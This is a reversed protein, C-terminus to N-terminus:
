SVPPKQVPGQQALASMGLQAIFSPLTFFFHEPWKFMLNISFLSAHPLCDM